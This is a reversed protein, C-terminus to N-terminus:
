RNCSCRQGSRCSEHSNRFRLWEREILRTMDEVPTVVIEADSAGAISAIHLLVSTEKLTLSDRGDALVQAKKLAAQFLKSRYARQRLNDRPCQLYTGLADLQNGEANHLTFFGDGRQGPTHNTFANQLKRQWVSALSM